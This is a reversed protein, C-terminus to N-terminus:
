SSSSAPRLARIDGDRPARTAARSPLTLVRVNVQRRGFVKARACDRIFIDIENGKVAAGTDAVTFTQARGSMLGTVRITTGMPLVRPDAAVTGSQAETGSSTTGRQCYATASMSLTRANPARRQADIETAGIVFMAALAVLAIASRQEVPHARALDDCSKLGM